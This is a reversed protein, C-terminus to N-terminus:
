QFFLLWIFLLEGSRSKPTNHMSRKNPTDLLNLYSPYKILFKNFLLSALITFICLFLTTINLM